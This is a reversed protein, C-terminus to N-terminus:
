KKINNIQESKQKSGFSSGFWFNLIQPIAATIVGVIVMTSNTLDQSTTILLYVIVFYGSVFLTSLCIQPWMNVKAMERASKTNEVSLKEVDIDLSKMKVKFDHESAKLELLKDPSASLVAAIVDDEQADEDDLLAGALFKVATGALPGGLATAITPAVSSIVDKWDSM